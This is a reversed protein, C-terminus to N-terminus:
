NISRWSRRMVNLFSALILAARGGQALSSMEVGELRLESLTRLVASSFRPADAVSGFYSLAGLRVIANVARRTIVELTLATATTRGAEALRKRSLEQALQEISLRHLGCLRLHSNRYVLEDAALKNRSVILLGASDNQQALFEGGAEILPENGTASFHMIKVSKRNL